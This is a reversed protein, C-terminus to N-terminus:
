NVSKPVLHIEVEYGLVEAVKYLIPVKPNRKGREYYSITVSSVNVQDAVAKLPFGKEERIRRLTQPLDAPSTIVVVPTKSEM